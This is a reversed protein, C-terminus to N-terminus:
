TWDFTFLVLGDVPEYFMVIMDAGSIGYHVAPVSLVHQFRRKAPSLPWVSYDGSHDDAPIIDMPFKVTEVWNAFGQAEGGLEDFFTYRKGGQASWTLYGRERYSRRAEQYAAHETLYHQQLEDRVGPHVEPLDKNDPHLFFYRPDGCLRYRGSELKFGIWNTKLLEGDFGMNETLDGVLGEYPEVPSLLHLRGSWQPNISSADISLLALMHQALEQQDAVFVDSAEPFAIAHEPLRTFDPSTATPM